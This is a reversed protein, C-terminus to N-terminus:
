TIVFSQTVLEPFLTLLIKEIFIRQIIIYHLYLRMFLKVQVILIHVNQTAPKGPSQWVLKRAREGIGALVQAQSIAAGSLPETEECNLM